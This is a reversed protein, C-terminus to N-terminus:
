RSGLKADKGADGVIDGGEKDNAIDMNVVADGDKTDEKNDAKDAENGVVVKDTEDGVGVGPKTKEGVGGDFDRDGSGRVVKDANKLDDDLNQFENTGVSDAVTDSNHIAYYMYVAVLIILTVGLKFLM